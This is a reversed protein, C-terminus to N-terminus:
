VLMSEQEMVLCIPGTVIASFAYKPLNRALVLFPGFYAGQQHFWLYSGLRLPLLPGTSTFIRGLLELSIGDQPFHCCRLGLM